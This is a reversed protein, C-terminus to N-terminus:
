DVDIFGVGFMVMLTLSAVALSGFVTAFFMKRRGYCRVTVWTFAVIFLPLM